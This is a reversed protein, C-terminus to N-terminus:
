SSQRPPKQQLELTVADLITDPEAMRGTGTTGCALWGEGPEVFAYGWERLSTVNRQVIPNEWMRTNMAPALLAPCRRGLMLTTVLDDGIGAAFKGILDATAPAVLLLDALETLSLHQPDYHGETQWMTTFVQRRTLAQFTLPTVFKTGADTMAVSVGCGRQVLRSVVHCVKYAAIGGGVAVIVEYGKLDSTM